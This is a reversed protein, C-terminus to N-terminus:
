PGDIDHISNLLEDEDDQGGTDDLLTQADFQLVEPVAEAAKPKESGEPSSSVGVGGLDLVPRVGPGIDETHRDDEDFRRMIEEFDADFQSPSEDIEVAAYGAPPAAAGPRPDSPAADAAAALGSEFDAFGDDADMAPNLGGVVPALRQPALARKFLQEEMEADRDVSRPEHFSLLPAPAAGWAAGAMSSREVMQISAGDGAGIVQAGVVGRRGGAAADRAASTSICEDGESKAADKKALARGDAPAGLSRMGWCHAAAAAAFWARRETTWAGLEGFVLAGTLMAAASSALGYSSLVALNDHAELARRLPASAASRV